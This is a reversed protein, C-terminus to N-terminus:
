GPPGRHRRRGTEGTLHVVPRGGQWTVSGAGADFTAHHNVGGTCLLGASDPTLKGDDRYPTGLHAVQCWGAPADCGAVICGGDRVRLIQWLGAPVTRVKRTVSM